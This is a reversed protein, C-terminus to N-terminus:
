SGPCSVGGLPAGTKDTFPPAVLHPTHWNQCKLGRRTPKKLAATIDEQEVHSEHDLHSVVRQKQKLIQNPPNPLTEGATKRFLTGGDKSRGECISHRRHSTPISNDRYHSADGRLRHKQHIM